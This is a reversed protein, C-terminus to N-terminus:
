ALRMIRYRWQKAQRPELLLFDTNKKDALFHSTYSVKAFDVLRSLSGGYRRVWTLVSIVLILSLIMVVVTVVLLFHIMGGRGGHGVGRSREIGKGTCYFAFSNMGEVNLCRKSDEEQLTRYESPAHRCGTEKYLALRSQKGDACIAASSVLLKNYGLDVCTDPEPHKWFPAKGPMCASESTSGKKQKKEDGPKKKDDEDEPSSKKVGECWFAMSGIKMIDLCTGIDKDELEVLGYEDDLTGYGCGPERFRAWQARTGNACTAATKIELSLTPTKLCRDVPVNLPKRKKMGNCAPFLHGVVIADTAELASVDNSGAVILVRSALLLVVSNLLPHLMKISHLYTVGHQTKLLFFDTLILSCFVHHPQLVRNDVKDRNNKEM